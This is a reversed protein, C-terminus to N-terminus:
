EDPDDVIQRLLDATLRDEDIEVCDLLEIVLVHDTDVESVRLEDRRRNQDEKLEDINDERIAIDGILETDHASLCGAEAIQEVTEGDGPRAM